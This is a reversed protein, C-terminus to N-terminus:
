KNNKSSWHILKIEDKNAGHLLSEANLYYEDIMNLRKFQDILQYITLNGVNFVNISPHKSCVSSIIDSMDKTQEHKAYKEKMQKLQQLFDKQKNNQPKVRKSTEICNQKKLIDIFYNYNDFSLFKGENIDGVIFCGDIFFQVQEKLFLNLSKLILDKAEENQKCNWYLYEFPQIISDDEINLMEKISDSDLCLISLYKNYTEFGVEIIENLTLPSLKLKGIDVIKGLLFQINLDVENLTNM